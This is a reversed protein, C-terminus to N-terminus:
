SFLFDGLKLAEPSGAAYEIGAYVDETNERFIVMNVREPHLVPSCTGEIWRVPRICAYLDFHQRLTVNLSRFGGGVPTGLPGKIAVEANELAKLTAQPLLEGTAALAKEGALLETWELSESMHAMAADLVPRAVKWIEPGIGDGEIWYVKKM